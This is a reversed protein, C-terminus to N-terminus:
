FKINVRLFLPVVTNRVAIGSKHNRDNEVLKENENTLTQAVLALEFNESIRYNLGAGFGYALAWYNFSAGNLSNSSYKEMFNLKSYGIGIEVFPSFRTDTQLKGWFLIPFTEITLKATSPFYKLNFETISVNTYAISVSLFLQTLEVIKFPGYEIGLSGYLGPNFLKDDTERFFYYNSPINFSTGGSIVLSFRGKNFNEQSNIIGSFCIMILVSFLFIRM